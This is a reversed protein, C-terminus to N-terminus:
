IDTLFLALELAKDPPIKFTNLLEIFKEIKKKELFIDAVLFGITKIGYTKHLTGEESLLTEELISYKYM